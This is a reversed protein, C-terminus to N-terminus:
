KTTPFPFLRNGSLQAVGGKRYSEGRTGRTGCISVVMLFSFALPLMMLLAWLTRSCLEKFVNADERERLLPYPDKQREKEMVSLVIRLSHVVKFTSSKGFSRKMWAFSHPHHISSSLATERERGEHFNFVLAWCSATLVFAGPFETLHLSTEPLFLGRCFAPLWTIAWKEFVSHVQAKNQTKNRVTTSIPPEARTEQGWM